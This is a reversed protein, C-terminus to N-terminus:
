RGKGRVIELNLVRGTVRDPLSILTELRDAIKVTWGLHLGDALSPDKLSPLPKRNLKVSEARITPLVFVLSRAKGLKKGVRRPWVRVSVTDEWVFRIKTRALRGVKEPPTLSAPEKFQWSVVGRGPFCILTLPDWAKEGVYQAAPAEPIVAGARAFVPVHQLDVKYSIKRPGNLHLCSWFDYWSGEPLTVSRVAVGDGFRSSDTVPAVLLDRGLLYEQDVSALATDQPAYWALPRMIPLGTEHSEVALNYFFPVLRQRLSALRRYNEVGVEGYLWPERGPPTGFMHAIPSFVAWQLSRVYLEPTMEGSFGGGDHSWYPFGSVGINLGARIQIALSEWTAPQDGAWTIPFRQSGAYGGRTWVLAQGGTARDMRRWFEGVYVLPFLNHMEDGTKGNAFSRISTVFYSEVGGDLKFFRVGHKVLPEHFRWWWDVADPNSFDVICGDDKKWWDVIPVSGDVNRVYYRKRLGELFNDCNANVVHAEWLGFRYHLQRLRDLMGWPDAYASGFRFDCEHGRLWISDLLLADLPLGRRRFGEAVAVVASDSPWYGGLWIGFVWPPLLPPRGTLETYRSVVQEPSGASIFFYDLEPDGQQEFRLLEPDSDGLDWINRLPTHLFVGYARSSLLFPVMVDKCDSTHDLWVQVTHGRRNLPGAWEGLGFLAEGPLLSFVEGASDPSWWLGEGPAERALLQGDAGYFSLRFPEKTIRLSLEPVVLDLENPREVLQYRTRARAPRAVLMLSVRERIRKGVRIRIIGPLYADARLRLTDGSRSLFTVLAGSGTDQYGVFHAPRDVPASLLGGAAGLVIAAVLGKLFTKM